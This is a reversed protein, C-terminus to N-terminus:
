SNDLEEQRKEMASYFRWFENNLDSDNSIANALEEDSLASTDVISEISPHERVFAELAAAYKPNQTLQTIDPLSGDDNPTLMTEVASNDPVFQKDYDSELAKPIPFPSPASFRRRNLEYKM